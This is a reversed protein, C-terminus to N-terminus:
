GLRLVSKAISVFWDENNRRRSWQRRGLMARMAVDGVVGDADLVCAKSVEVEGCLARSLILFYQM